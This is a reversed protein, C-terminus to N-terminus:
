ATWDVRRVVNPTNFPKSAEQHYTQASAKCLTILKLSKDDLREM